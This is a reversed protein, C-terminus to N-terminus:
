GKTREDMMQQHKEELEQSLRLVYRTYYNLEGTRQYEKLATKAGNYKMLVVAPDEYQDFLEAVYSFAVIAGGDYTLMDEPTLGYAAIRDAQAYINIQFPGWCSGSSDKICEKYTGGTEKNCIATMFEPCVGFMESYIYCVEELEDPLDPDNVHDYEWWTRLLEEETPRRPPEPCDAEVDDMPEDTDIYEILYHIDGQLSEGEAALVPEDLWTTQSCIAGYVPLISLGMGLLATLLVRKM